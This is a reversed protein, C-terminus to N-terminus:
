TNDDFQAYFDAIKRLEAPTADNKIRNARQSVMVINGKVYGKTPDIRDIAMANDSAGINGSYSLPIGLVPCTTPLPYLDSLTLNFVIGKQLAHNRKYTFRRGLYRRLEEDQNIADYNAGYRRTKKNQQEVRKAEQRVALASVALGASALKNAIQKIRQRSVGYDAGIEAYTKGMRLKAHIELDRSYLPRTTQPVPPLIDGEDDDTEWGIDFNM